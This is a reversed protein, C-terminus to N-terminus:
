DPATLTTAVSSAGMELEPGDSIDLPPTRGGPAARALLAKLLGAVIKPAEIPPLHGCDPIVHLESRPIAEHIAQSLPLPTMRDEEGVIIFCPVAITALVPRLDSRALVAENQRVYTGTGVRVGMETLGRAAGGLGPGLQRVGLREVGM